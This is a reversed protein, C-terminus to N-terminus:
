LWGGRFEIWVSGHGSFKLTVSRDDCVVGSADTLNNTGISVGYAQGDNVAVTIDAGDEVHVLIPCPRMSPEITIVLSNSGNVTLPEMVGAVAAETSCGYERIIGTEFNFLDWLWPENASCIDYKYPELTYNVKIAPASSYADLELRGLYYYGNDDELRVRVRRGHIYNALRHCITDWGERYNRIHFEWNGTRSKYMQRGTIAESLDLPGDTSYADVYVTVVEPPNVVPRTVPVLSFDDFTNKDDIWISHGM